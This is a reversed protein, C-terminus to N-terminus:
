EYKVKRVTGDAYKVIFIGRSPSQVLYGQLSYIAVPTDNTSLTTIADPTASFHFSILGDTERIQTIPKGMFFSGDSRAYYLTAAPTTTDTLADHGGGLSDTYPYATYQLRISRGDENYKNKRGYLNEYYNFDLGDAHFLDYCHHEPNVNVTNESWAYDRYDVHAVVLGHGPIMKDWGVQQRNELLYFEDPYADNIIRYALGSQDFAPMTVDGSTTLDVPTQWNLLEREHSSLNVPCWGDGSYCGGDMVDWEDVISYEDGATPYLDPLGLTHCYEHIITGIGASQNTSWLENSASYYRLLVGDLTAYYFNTNPWICGDTINGKSKTDENGGYGAYILIVAQVRGQGDWDYVSFDVEPDVAKLAENIQLWGQNEKAKSKQNTTLKVPGIIDFQINFLGNSQARFYDAVCGPGGGPNYGKENFMRDYYERPDEWSFDCDAFSFLVVPVRYVKNADWMKTPVEGVRQVAQQRAFRLVTGDRLQHTKYRAAFVSSTLACLVFIALLKRM